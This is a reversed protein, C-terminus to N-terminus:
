HIAVKKIKEILHIQKGQVNLISKAILHVVFVIQTDYRFTIAIQLGRLMGFM